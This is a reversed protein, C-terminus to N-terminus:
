GDCNERSGARATSGDVVRGQVDGGHGETTDTLTAVAGVASAGAEVDEHVATGDGAAGAPEFRDQGDAVGRVRALQALELRGARQRRVEVAVALLDAEAPQTVEQRESAAAGLRSGAASSDNSGTLSRDRKTRKRLHTGRQM